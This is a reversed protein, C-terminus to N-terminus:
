GPSATPLCAACVCPQMHTSDVVSLIHTSYKNGTSVACLQGLVENKEDGDVLWSCCINKM